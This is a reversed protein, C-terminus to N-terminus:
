RRGGLLLTDIENLDVLVRFGNKFRTLKGEAM